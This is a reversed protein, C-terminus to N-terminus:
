LKSSYKNKKLLFFYYIKKADINNSIKINDYIIDWKDTINDKQLLYQIDCIPDYIIISDVSQYNHHNIHIELNLNHILLTLSHILENYLKISISFNHCSKIDSFNFDYLKHSNKKNIINFSM